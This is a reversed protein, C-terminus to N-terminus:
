EVVLCHFHNDRVLHNHIDGDGLHYGRFWVAGLVLVDAVVRPGAGFVSTAMAM